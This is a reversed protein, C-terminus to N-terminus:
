GEHYDPGPFQIDSPASAIIAGCVRRFADEHCCGNDEVPVTFIFNWESRWWEASNLATKGELPKCRYYRLRPEWNERPLFRLAIM